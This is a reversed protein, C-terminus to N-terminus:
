WKFEEEAKLKGLIRCSDRSSLDDIEEDTYGIKLLRERQSPRTPDIMSYKFVPYMEPNFQEKEKNSLWHYNNKKTVKHKVYICINGKETKRYAYIEFDEKMIYWPRGQLRRRSGLIYGYKGM